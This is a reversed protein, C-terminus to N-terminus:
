QDATHITDELIKVIVETVHSAEKYNEQTLSCHLYNKFMGSFETVFVKCTNFIDYVGGTSRARTIGENEHLITLANEAKTDDSLHYIFKSIFEKMERKTGDKLLSSEIIEEMDIRVRNFFAMVNEHSEKDYKRESTKVELQQPPFHITKPEQPEM